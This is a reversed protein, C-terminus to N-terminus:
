VQDELYFFLYNMNLSQYFLRQREGIYKVTIQIYELNQNKGLLIIYCIQQSSKQGLHKQLSQRRWLMSGKVEKIYIAFSSIEKLVSKGNGM